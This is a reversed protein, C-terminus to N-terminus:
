PHTFENAHPILEFYVRAPLDTHWHGTWQAYVYVGAFLASRGPPSPGRPSRGARPRPSSCPAPPPASRWANCAPPANPPSSAHGAPGRPARLPLGQRVQRLRHVPEGRAPHAAPQGDLGPGDARRVPLSLPVLLEARVGVRARDRCWSAARLGLFRFFNLMKVDAVIGYPGELFARIAPVSMSVVAYLFLGLLIYKLSRLAIDLWRPLRFNRGFTQRRAALPVRFDHRRPVALRLLEQPLDLVRGPVRDAPVDRRRADRAGRGTLLLVKLNM